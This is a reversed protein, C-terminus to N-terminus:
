NKRKLRWEVEDSQDDQHGDDQVQGPEEVELQDIMLRFVPGALEHFIRDVDPVDNTDAITVENPEADPIKKPEADSIENSKVLPIEIIQSLNKMLTKM